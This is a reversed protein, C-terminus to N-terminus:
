RMNPEINRPDVFSYGKKELKTLLTDLAEVTWPLEHMLINSGPHLQEMVNNIVADPNNKSKSEWDLSGNSWTMFLLNNDRAIKKVDDGGSGFPPRFFKPKEGVTKMVIKQVDEIQKKTEQFNQKRLDIHDWSHNGIIQGRDHILKLLEPNQKVRYGNVFFIAKADHKDLTDILNNIMTKDKPGDDFTLLVVKKETVEDNPVINYIKNMHYQPQVPSQEKPKTQNKDTEAENKDTPDTTTEENPKPDKDPAEVTNQNEDPTENSQNMTSENGAPMKPPQHHNEEKSGCASLLLSAALLLATTKKVM